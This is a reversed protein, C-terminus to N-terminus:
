NPHIRHCQKKTIIDYGNPHKTNIRPINYKTFEECYRHLLLVQWTSTQIHWMYITM